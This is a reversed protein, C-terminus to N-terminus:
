TVSSIQNKNGEVGQLISSHDFLILPTIFVSCTSLFM